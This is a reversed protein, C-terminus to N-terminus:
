TRARRDVELSRSRETKIHRRRQERAGVLDDLLGLKQVSQQQVQEPRQQCM